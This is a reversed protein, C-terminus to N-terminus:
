TMRIRSSILTVAIVSASVHVVCARNRGEGAVIGLLRKVRSVFHSFREVANKIHLDQDGYRDADQEAMEIRFEAHRHLRQAVAEDFQNAHQDSRDNETRHDGADGAHLIQALDTADAALGQDIELHHRRKRQDDAQEGRMQHLWACTEIDIGGRDIGLLM